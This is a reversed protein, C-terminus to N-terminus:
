KKVGIQFNLERLNRIVNLYYFVKQYTILIGLSLNSTLSGLTWSIAKGM